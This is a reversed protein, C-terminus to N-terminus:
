IDLEEMILDHEAKMAEEVVTAAAEEDGTIFHDGMRSNRQKKKGYNIVFAKEGNRVGKRDRGIPYVDTRGGMYYSVYGNNGTAALMDGTRVHKMRQINEKMRREAVKAGAMVIRKIMPRVNQQLNEVQHLSDDINVEFRAM